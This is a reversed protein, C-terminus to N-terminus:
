KVGILLMTTGPYAVSELGGKGQTFLEAKGEWRNKVIWDNTYSSSSPHVRFGSETLHNKWEEIDWFCFTEHM